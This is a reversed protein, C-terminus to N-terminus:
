NGKKLNKLGLFSTAKEVTQGLARRAKSAIHHLAKPHKELKAPVSTPCRNYSYCFDNNDTFCTETSEQYTQTPGTCNLTNTYVEFNVHSAGCTAKFSVGDWSVCDGQKWVLNWRGITCNQDDYVSHVFYGAEVPAPPMTPPAPKSGHVTATVPYHSLLCQDNGRYVPIYGKDGWSAGWSNKILWYPLNDKATDVGYAVILVGHDLQSGGCSTMIGGFYMQWASADVAISLPGNEGVWAKMQDESHYINYHGTITAGVPKGQNQCSPAIGDGSVYPYAAETTIHGSRNNLLWLYANAMLGGDCGQDINDCSVLEQESLSVLPNGAMKWQGEIGGTTSFSWCSGCQGQNKVPTVAGKKTWDINEPVAALQEKTYEPWFPAAETPKSLEKIRNNYYKDGNHYVKFEAKTMDAFPSAGFKAHPNRAELARAEVMNEEFIRRRKAEEAASAYVKNHREKFFGWTQHEGRTGALATAALLSVVLVSRM